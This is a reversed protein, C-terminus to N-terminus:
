FGNPLHPLPAHGQVAATLHPKVTLRLAKAQEVVQAKRQKLLAKCTENGAGCSEMLTKAALANSSKAQYYLETRQKDARKYAELAFLTKKEMENLEHEMHVRTIFDAAGAKVAWQRQQESRQAAAREVAVERQASILAEKLEKEKESELLIGRAIGREKRRQQAALSRKRM